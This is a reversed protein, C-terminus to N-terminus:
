LVIYSVFISTVVLLQLVILVFFLCRFFLFAVLSVCRLCACVCVRAFACVCVCVFFCVVISPVGVLRM